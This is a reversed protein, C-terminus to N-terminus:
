SLLVGQVFHYVVSKQPTLFFSVSLHIECVLVLFDMESNFMRGRNLQSTQFWQALYQNEVLKQSFYYVEKQPRQFLIWTPANRKLCKIQNLRIYRCTKRERLYIIKLPTQIICNQGLPYRPVQLYRPRNLGYSYSYLYTCM